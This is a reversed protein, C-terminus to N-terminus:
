GASRTSCRTASVLEKKTFVYRANPFTPVWRGDVLRTNWGVHDSHMHTCMVFDIDELAVDLAGLARLYVDDTKMHWGPRNPREKHNGVCSDILITHHATRVLYSQIPFLLAGSQPDIAKPKLWSEYPAWDAETTEPFFTMRDFPTIVEVARVVTLDGIRRGTPAM